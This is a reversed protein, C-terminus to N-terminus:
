NILIRYFRKGSPNSDVTGLLKIDDFRTGHTVLSAGYLYFKWTVTETTTFDTFNITEKEVAANSAPILTETIFVENQNGIKYSIDLRATSGFQNSFFNLEEYKISNSSPNINFSFTHNNTSAATRNAQNANAFNFGPSGSDSPDLLSHTFVFGAGGGTLGGGQTLDSAATFTETDVSKFADTNFDGSNGTEADYLALTTTGAPPATSISYSTSPATAHAPVDSALTSWTLLDESTQINYSNGANSIWTLTVQDSSDMTIIPAGFTSASTTPDTGAAVEFGDLQGDGDTDPLTPDTGATTEETLTLGDRDADQAELSLMAAATAAGMSIQGSANFHIGTNNSHTNFTDTNVFATQHGDSAVDEQAQRVTNVSNGPTSVSSGYQNASLGTIVFPLTYGGTTQGGFATSRVREILATLNAEYANANAANGTDSEGQIWVMGGVEYTHGADTLAQLGAAVTTVFTTYNTGTASWQTHLNTGGHTYKIIAINVSPDADAMDRGFKLESGFEVAYPSPSNEGHGTDPQLSLWTNQALNGNTTVQTKKWYLQVDNQATSLPATLESADGRGNGNSQGGLLYVRYHTAYLPSTFISSTLALFLLKKLNRTLM